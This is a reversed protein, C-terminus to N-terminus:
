GEKFRILVMAEDPFESAGCYFDYINGASDIFERKKPDYTAIRTM